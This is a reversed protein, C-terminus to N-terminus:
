LSQQINVSNVNQKLKEDSQSQLRCFTNDNTCVDWDHVIFHVNASFVQKLFWLLLRHILFSDANGLLKNLWKDSILTETIFGM